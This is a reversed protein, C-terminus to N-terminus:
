VDRIHNDCNRDKNTYVENIDKNIAKKKARCSMNRTGKYSPEAPNWINKLKDSVAVAKM